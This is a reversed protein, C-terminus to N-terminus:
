YLKHHVLFHMGGNMLVPLVTLLRGTYPLRLLPKDSVGQGTHIAVGDQSNRNPGLRHPLVLGTEIALKLAQTRPYRPPIGM